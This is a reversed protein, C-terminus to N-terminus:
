IYIQHRQLRYDFCLHRLVSGPFPFTPSSHAAYTSVIEPPVPHVPPNLTAGEPPHRREKVAYHRKDKRKKGKGKNMLGNWAQALAVFVAFFLTRETLQHMRQDQHYKKKNPMGPPCGHRGAGDLNEEVDWGMSLPNTM